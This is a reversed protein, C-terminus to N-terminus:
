FDEIQSPGQDGPLLEISCLPKSSPSQKQLVETEKKTAYLQREMTEVVRKMRETMEGGEGARGQELDLYRHVWVAMTGNLKRIEERKKRLERDYNGQIESMVRTWQAMEKRHSTYISQELLSLRSEHQKYTSLLSTIRQDLAQFSSIVTKVLKRLPLEHELDINEHEELLSGKTVSRELRVSRKFEPDHTWVVGVHRVTHHRTLTRSSIPKAVRPREGAEPIRTISRNDTRLQDKYAAFLFSILENSHQMRETLAALKLQSIEYQHSM